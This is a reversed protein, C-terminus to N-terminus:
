TAIGTGDVQVNCSGRPDDSVIQVTAAGDGIGSPQYNLTVDAEAGAPITIPFPATPGISFDSSGFISIGYIHLDAIGTNFMQLLISRQTNKPVAGFGTLRSPNTALRPAGAAVGRGSIAFQYHSGAHNNSAIEFVAAQDGPTSPAFAVQFTKTGGSALTVPFTDSAGVTFATSGSSRTIGTVILPSDGSNYVYLPLTSSGGQPVFGFTPGLEVAISPGTPRTIEFCGRGYTGVRLVPPQVSNDIALSMCSVTPLGAGYIKWTAKVTGGSISVNSCRMVGADNAVIIASPSISADFVVAHVPLDPLNGAPGEGDTGSVDVWAGGGNSTLFVRLTRYTADIGSQGGYVVAVRSEDAPDIGISTVPGSGPEGKFLGQDWTAGSNASFHVRGDATGIWLHQSNKTTTAITTIVAETSKISAEFSEGADLSKYLNQNLAVYVVRKSPETGNQELAVARAPIDDYLPLGNGIPISGAQSPNNTRFTVGADVSKIFMSDDFGYVIKPDSPDVAVAYGDGDIGLRWVTTGADEPRHASTGTDQCGGYTYANGAGRGIGIGLLLNSSIAGNIATWHVGGDISKSIGGDTGIYIPTPAGSRHSDPSFALAHHDWHVQGWTSAPYQFKRGGDVSRWLEQFGAYVLNDAQPDVGLTLDYWTQSFGDGAAADVNSLQSWNAGGDKSEFLGRFLADGVPPTYQLSVLLEQPKSESQAIELNGFPQSTPAGPNSFLNTFSVGADLSKMVGVGYVGAYFANSPNGADPLLCTVFGALVPNRDDFGPGNAGFNRGGDGSRYLGQDTAVLLVDPGAVVIRNILMNAFITDLVGGDVVAWSRGGDCSRFIGVGKTFARGGDFPNGTGAYVIQPNSPDIAVAGMSLSPMADMTPAWTGGGDTSKWIGGDNTAIYLNSDTAGSPDIAIDTVEGSDPGAGQFAKDETPAGPPNNWKVQSEINLPGPGISTWLILADVDMEDFDLLGQRWLDARPRGSSDSRNRLFAGWRKRHGFEDHIPM